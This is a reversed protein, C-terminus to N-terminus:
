WRIKVKDAPMNKSIMEVVFAAKDGMQSRPLITANIESTYVIISRTTSVAKVMADWDQHEKNEGQEVSIGTEDLTYKLKERFFPSLIVQQRSKLFLVWPLYLLMMAGLIVLIWFETAVGIVIALAGIVNAILTGAKHYHHMLMFDYLDGAGIKIELEVM